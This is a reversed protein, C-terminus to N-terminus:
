NGYKALGVPPILCDVVAQARDDPTVVLGAARANALAGSAVLTCVGFGVAYGILLVTGLTPGAAAVPPPPLAHATSAHGTVLAALALGAVGARLKSTM